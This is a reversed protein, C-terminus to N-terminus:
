YLARLGHNMAHKIKKINPMSLQDYIKNDQDIIINKIACFKDSWKDSYKLADKQAHTTHMGQQTIDHM